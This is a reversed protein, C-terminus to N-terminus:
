RYKYKGQDYQFGKKAEKILENVNGTNLVKM